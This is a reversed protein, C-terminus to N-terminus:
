RRERNRTGSLDSKRGKPLRRGGNSACTHSKKQRRAVTADQPGFLYLGQFTPTGLARSPRIAYLLAQQLKRENSHQVNRLSLIRVNFSENTITETVLDAPVALGDLILTQVDQLINRKRLNSFM